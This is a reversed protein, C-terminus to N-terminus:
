TEGRSVRWVPVARAQASPLRALAERKRTFYLVRGREDRLLRAQDTPADPVWVLWHKTM